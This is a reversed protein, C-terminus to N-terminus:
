FFQERSTTVVEVPQGHADRFRAGKLRVHVISANLSSTEVSMEPTEIHSAVAAHDRQETLQQRRQQEQHDVPTPPHPPTVHPHQEPKNFFFYYGLLVMGAIALVTLTSRGQPQQDM